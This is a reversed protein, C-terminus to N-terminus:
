MLVQQRCIVKRLPCIWVNKWAPPIVLSRIRELTSKDKITKNQFVYKFGKGASTRKIGEDKCNVYVLQVAKATAVPDKALKLKKAKTM